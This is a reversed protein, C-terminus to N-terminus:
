PSPLYNSSRQQHHEDGELMDLALEVRYATKFCDPDLETLGLALIFSEPWEMSPLGSKKGRSARARRSLCNQLLGSGIRNLSLRSYFIGAGRNITSM